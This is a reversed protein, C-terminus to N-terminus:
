LGTLSLTSGPSIDIMGQTNMFAAKVSGADLKTTGATFTGGAAMQVRMMGIMAANATPTPVTVSALSSAMTGATCTLTGGQSMFFCYVNENGGTITGTPLAAMDTGATKTVLVGNAIVYIANAIEATTSGTPEIRLGGDSLCQSQARDRLNNVATKVNSYYTYVDKDSKGTSTIDGAMVASSIGASCILGLLLRKLM